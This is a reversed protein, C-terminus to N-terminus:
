GKVKLTAAIWASAEAIAKPADEALVPHFLHWAHFMDAYVHLTVDAGGTAAKNALVLSDGLLVEDTGVQILLPPLGDLDGKVPSIYPNDYPMGNAVLVACMEAIGTHVWPEKHRLLTHTEHTMAFDLFPSILFIGGPMPLRKAKLSLIMAMTLTGGGSDGAVVINEPKFGQELMHRYTAVGADMSGPFPSEPAMPYDMNWAVVGAGKAFRTVLHRHSLASGFVQGGGHHYLIAKGTAAGEPTYLEGPIPAGELPKIQVGEAPPFAGFQEDFQQRADIVFAKVAERDEIPPPKLQLTSAQRLSAAVQKVAPDSM